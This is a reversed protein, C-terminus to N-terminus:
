VQETKGISQTIVTKERNSILFKNEIENLSHEGTNFALSEIEEKLFSPSLHAYRRVLATGSHRLLTAITTENFGNM